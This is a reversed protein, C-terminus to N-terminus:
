SDSTGITSRGQRRVHNIRVVALVVGVCGWLFPGQYGQGPAVFEWFNRFASTTQQLRYWLSFVMYVHVTTAALCVCGLVVVVRVLWAVRRGSSRLVWDTTLMILLLLVIVYVLWPVAFDLWGYDFHSSYTQMAGLFVM